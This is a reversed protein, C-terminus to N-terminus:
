AKKLFFMSKVINKENLSFVKGVTIVAKKKIADFFSLPM